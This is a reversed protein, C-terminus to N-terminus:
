APRGRGGQPRGRNFFDRRQWRAALSMGRSCAQVSPRAMPVVHAARGLTPMQGPTSHYHAASGLRVLQDPAEFDDFDGQVLKVDACIGKLYELL